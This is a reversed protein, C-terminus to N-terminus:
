HAGDPHLHNLLQRTVDCDNSPNRSTVRKFRQAEEVEREVGDRQSVGYLTFRDLDATLQRLHCEGGSFVRRITTRDVQRISTIRDRLEAVHIHRATAPCRNCCKDSVQLCCEADLHHVTVEIEHLGDSTSITRNADIRRLVTVQERWVTRVVARRHLLNFVQKRVQRGCVEVMRWHKM